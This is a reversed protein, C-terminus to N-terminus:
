DGRLADLAFAAHMAVGHAMADEDFRVRNSHNPPADEPDLEPPCGGIFAFAGTVRQLVYSFDEAGMVPDPM